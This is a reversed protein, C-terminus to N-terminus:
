GHPPGASQEGHPSGAAYRGHPPGAQWGTGHPEGADWRGHPEGASWRGHPSGASVGALFASIAPTILVQHAGCVRGKWKPPLGPWRQRLVVPRIPPPIAIFPLQGRQVRRPTCPRIRPPAQRLCRAGQAPSPLLGTVIRARRAQPCPAPRQRLVRGTIVPAVAATVVLGTVVRGRPARQLRYARVLARGGLPVVVAPVVVMGTIAQPRLRTPTLRYFRRLVSAPPILPAIQAGPVASPVLRPRPARQLRAARRLVQGTVPTTVVQAQVVIGPVVRPTLPRRVLRPLAARQVTGMAPVSPRLGQRVYGRQPGAQSRARHTLIRPAAPLVPRGQVVRGRAAVPLRPPRYRLVAAGLPTVAPIAPAAPVQLQQRPHRKRRQQQRVASAPALKIVAVVATDSDSTNGETWVCHEASGAGSLRNGVAIGAAADNDLSAATNKTFGTGSSVTWTVSNGWDQVMSLALQGDATTAATTGSDANSTNSANGTGAASKDLCGSGASADLGSYEEATWGLEGGTQAGKTVTITLSGTASAVATWIDGATFNGATGVSNGILKTYTNSQNDTPTNCDAVSTASTYVFIRNGAKVNSAFTGPISIAGASAVSTTILSQVRSWGM